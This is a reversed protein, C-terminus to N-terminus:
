DQYNEGKINKGNILVAGDTVDYLRLLLKTLMYGKGYNWYPRLLFLICKIKGTRNKGKKM